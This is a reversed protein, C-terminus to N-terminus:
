RVTSMNFKGTGSNRETVVGEWQEGSSGKLYILKDATGQLNLAGTSFVHNVIKRYCM